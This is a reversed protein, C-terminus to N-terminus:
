PRLLRADECAGQGIGGRHPRGTAAPCSFRIMRGEGGSCEAALPKEKYAGPVVIKKSMRRSIGLILALCM